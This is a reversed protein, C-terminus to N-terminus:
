DYWLHTSLLGGQPNRHLGCDKSVFFASGFSLVGDWCM